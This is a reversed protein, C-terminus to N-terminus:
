PLPESEPLPVNALDALWAQLRAPEIMTRGLVSHVEHHPESPSLDDTWQQVYARLDQMTHRAQAARVRRGESRRLIDQHKAYEAKFERTWRLALNLLRDLNAVKSQDAPGIAACQIKAAHLDYSLQLALNGPRFYPHFWDAFSGASYVPKDGKNPAENCVSCILTLNDACMSLLPFASKTIWHDVHPTDGLPGGCMVCVQRADPSNNLRHADRFSGVFESYTVGGEAAPTGDELYPLGARFGKEYFAEMLTKFANWHSNSALPIIAPWAPPAAQFQVALTSVSHVWRALAAREPAPMSIVLRAHELLTRGGTVRQLFKWLWEAEIATSLVPPQLSAQTLEAETIRPNCLWLAFTRMLNQCAVLAPSCSVRRIPKLM